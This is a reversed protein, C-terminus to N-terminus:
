DDNGLPKGDAPQTTAGGSRPMPLVPTPGFMYENGRVVVVDGAALGPAAVAVKDAVESVIEVPTPTAIQGQESARVVYIMSMPGRVVVADKPVVLRRAALGSPMACRVFMGAKLTGAPNPIDIEVPFTRAREDAEPIVRSVSGVYTMGIADVSVVVGAGIECFAIMKEPVPVRVRVTSLDLLEVIAGGQNVWSGVETRKRVIIGDFPAAIATRDLNDALGVVIVKQAELAQKAQELRAKAADFDAQSDFREKESSRQEKWLRATREMEFRAKALEATQVALLATMESQRALGEAHALKRPGARLRCLTQGQVVQEGEDIPVSVVQGAIETAVVTRRRPRVTGVLKITPALKLSEVSSVEVPSPGRGQALCKGIPLFVLLLLPGIMGAVVADQRGRITRPDRSSMRHINLARARHSLVGFRM